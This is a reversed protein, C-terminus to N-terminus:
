SGGVAASTGSAVGLRRASAPYSRRRGATLGNAGSPTRPRRDKVAAAPEASRSPLDAPGLRGVRPRGRVCLAAGARRTCVGHVGGRASRCLLGGRCLLALGFEACGRAGAACSGGACGGPLGKGHCHEVPQALPSRGALGCRAVSRYRRPVLSATEGRQGFSFTPTVASTVLHPTILVPLAM